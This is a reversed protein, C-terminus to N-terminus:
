LNFIYFFISQQTRNRSFPLNASSLAKIMHYSKNTTTAIKKTMLNLEKLMVFYHYSKQKQQDSAEYGSKISVHIKNIDPM